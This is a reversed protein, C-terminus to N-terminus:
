GGGNSSAPKAGSGGGGRLGEGMAVRAVLRAGEEVKLIPAEVSGEVDGSAGIEVREKATIDGVVTGRILLSGVQVKAEVVGTEGIVLLGEAVIEGRFHGDIRVVGNFSIKGEFSTGEDLFAQLQESM